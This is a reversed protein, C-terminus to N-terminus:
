CCEIGLYAGCALGTCEEDTGMRNRRQRPSPVKTLDVPRFFILAEKGTEDGWGIYINGDVAGKKSMM